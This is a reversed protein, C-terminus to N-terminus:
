NRACRLSYKLLRSALLVIGDPKGPRTEVGPAISAIVLVVGIASMAPAYHRTKGGARRGLLLDGFFFTTVALLNSVRLALATM